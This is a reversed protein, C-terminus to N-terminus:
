QSQTQVEVLPNILHNAEVAMDTAPRLAVAVKAETDIMVIAVTDTEQSLDLNVIPSHTQKQVLIEPNLGLIGQSPDTRDGNKLPFFLDKLLIRTQFLIPTPM